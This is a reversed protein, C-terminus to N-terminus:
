RETLSMGAGRLARELRRYDAEQELDWLAVGGTPGHWRFTTGRPFFKLQTGLEQLTVAVGRIGYRVTSGPVDSSFDRAVIYPHTDLDAQQQRSEVVFRCGTTRCSANLRAYEAVELTWQRRRALADALREELVSEWTAPDAEELARVQEVSWRSQWSALGRAILAKAAPSGHQALMEGADVAAEADDGSVLAGALTELAPSYRRKAISTALDARWEARCHEPEQPSSRRVADFEAAAFGPDTRFFFALAPIAISCEHADRRSNYARRVRAAIASSGYREIRDMAAAFESRGEAAELQSLFAADLSPLTHDDLVGSVAIALRPRPAALDRLIIRRARSPAVDHLALLAADSGRLALRALMPAFRADAGFVRRHKMLISQRSESPLRNLATEVEGPFAALARTIQEYQRVPNELPGKPRLDVEFAEGIRDALLGSRALTRWRRTHAELLTKYKVSAPVVPGLSRTGHLGALTRLTGVSVPNSPDDVYRTLAAIAGARDRAAFLGADLGRRAMEDLAARSPLATLARIAANRDEGSPSADLVRVAWRLTDTEWAAERPAIDIEIINSIFPRADPRRGAGIGDALYLRYRGPEDFRVYHTLEYPVQVPAPKPKPPAPVPKSALYPTGNADYELAAVMAAGVVGGEVCGCIGGEVGMGARHLDRRPDGTGTARELVPIAYHRCPGEGGTRRNPVDDYTLVLFIREGIRFTRRDGAVSVTFRPSLSNRAAAADRQAIFADGPTQGALLIVIGAAIADM